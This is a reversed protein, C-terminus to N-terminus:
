KRVRWVHWTLWSMMKVKQLICFSTLVISTALRLFYTLVTNELFKFIICDSLIRHGPGLPPVRSKLHRPHDFPALIWSGFFDRSWFNVGLFDWALKTARSLELFPLAIVCLFVNSISCEHKKIWRVMQIYGKGWRATM